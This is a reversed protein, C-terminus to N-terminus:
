AGVQKGEKRRIVEDVYKVGKGNYPEPKRKARIDAAFQGVLQKDPGSIKVFQKDITVDLGM